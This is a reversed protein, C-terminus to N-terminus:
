EPKARRLAGKRTNGFQGASQKTWADAEKKAQGHIRKRKSADLRHVKEVKGGKVRYGDIRAAM